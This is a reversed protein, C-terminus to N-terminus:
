RALTDRLIHARDGARLTSTGNPLVAGGALWGAGGPPPQGAVVVQTGAYRGLMKARREHASVTEAHGMSPVLVLDPALLRWLDHAGDDLFDRCIVMVVLGHPTVLVTLRDGGDIGEFVGDTDIRILKDHVAVPDLGADLVVARNVRRAGHAEHFSGLVTLQPPAAALDDRLAAAQEPLLTLEPLVLVDVPASPLTALLRRASMLRRAPDSLGTAWFPATSASVPGVGDDFGAALVRAGAPLGVNASRVTVAVGDIHHPIVAHHPHSAPLHDGQKDQPSARPVPRRILWCGEVSVWRRDTQEVFVFRDLARLLALEDGPRPADVARGALADHLAAARGTHEFLAKSARQLLAADDRLALWLGVLAGEPDVQARAWAADISHM